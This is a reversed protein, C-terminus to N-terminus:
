NFIFFPLVPVEMGDCCFSRNSMKSIYTKGASSDAEKCGLFASKRSTIERRLHFKPETILHGSDSWTISQVWILPYRGCPAGGEPPVKGAFVM